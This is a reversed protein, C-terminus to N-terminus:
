LGRAGVITAEKFIERGQAGGGGRGSVEMKRKNSRSITGHSESARDNNQM